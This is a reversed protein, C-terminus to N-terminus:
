QTAFRHEVLEVVIAPWGDTEELGANTVAFRKQLRDLAARVHKRERHPLLDPLVRTSLRGQDRLLEVVEREIEDPEEDPALAVLAPGVRDVWAAAQKLTRIAVRLIM